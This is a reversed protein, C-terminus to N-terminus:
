SSLPQGRVLRRVNATTDAAAERAWASGVADNWGYSFYGHTLRPYSRILAPVGSDQLHRGYAVCEEDLTDLMGATILAPPADKLDGALAPSAIPNLGDKSEACYHNWYWAMSQYVPGFRQDREPWARTGAAVVHDVHVMPGYMDVQGAIGIGRETALLASAAALNGGASDGMTVVADGDGGLAHIEAKVWELAAVCSEVPIPFRYEPALRYDVNVVVCDTEHCIVRMNDDYGDITGFVFGGGHLYVVVPFPGAGTPRYVRMRMPEGQFEITVDDVAGVPRAAAHARSGSRENHWARAEEPTMMYYWRGANLKAQEALYRGVAEDVQMLESGGSPEGDNSV